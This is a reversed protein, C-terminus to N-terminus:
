LSLERLLRAVVVKTEGADVHGSGFAWLADDTAAAVAWHRATQRNLDLRDCLLEFRRQLRARGDDPDTALVEPDGRLTAAVDFAREGALPRPEVALWPRRRAGRINATRLDGHLLVRETQAPALERLLSVSEQVLAREFPRGVEHHRAPMSTAWSMAEDALSVVAGGVGGGGVGSGAGDARWLREAVSAVAEAWDDDNVASLAGGPEPREVLMGGVPDHDILEVAGDGGWAALATVEDTFWGDPYALRLQVPVNGSRTADVAYRVAVDPDPDGALELEWRETLESLVRPLAVLWPDALPGVRARTAEMFADLGAM